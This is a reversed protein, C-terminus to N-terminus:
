PSSPTSPTRPGDRVTERYRLRGEALRGGVTAGASSTCWMTVPLSGQANSVLVRVVAPGDMPADVDYPEIYSKKDSMRGRMCPDVSLYENAVLLRGAGPEPLDVECLSFDSATPRDAPRTDLHWALTTAPLTQESM